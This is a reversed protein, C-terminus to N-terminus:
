MYGLVLILHIIISTVGFIKGLNKRKNFILFIIFAVFLPVLIASITKEIFDTIDYFGEIILTYTFASIIGLVYGRKNSKWRKKNKIAKGEKQVLNIYNELKREILNQEIKELNEGSIIRKIIEREISEQNYNYKKQLDILNLKRNTLTKEAYEIGENQYEGRNKTLYYFLDEDSLSEIYIQYKEKM